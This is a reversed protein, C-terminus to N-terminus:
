PACRKRIMSAVELLAVQNGAFQRAKSWKVDHPRPVDYVDVSGSMRGFESAEAEIIALADAIARRYAAVEPTVEDAM